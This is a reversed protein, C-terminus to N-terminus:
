KFHKYFIEDLINTQLNTCWKGGNPPIGTPGSKFFANGSQLSQQSSTVEVEETDTGQNKIFYYTIKSIEQPVHVHGVIKESVILNVTITYM